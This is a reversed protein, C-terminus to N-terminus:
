IKQRMSVIALQYKRKLEEFEKSNKGAKDQLIPEDNGINRRWQQYHEHLQNISENVNSFQSVLLPKIGNYEGVLDCAGEFSRWKEVLIQGENLVHSNDKSKGPWKIHFSNYRYRLALLQGHIRAFEKVLSMRMERNKQLRSYYWSIGGGLVGLMTVQLLVKYLEILM